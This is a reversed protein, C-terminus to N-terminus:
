GRKTYGRGGEYHALAAETHSEIITADQDITAFTLTEGGQAYVEEIRLSSSLRNV